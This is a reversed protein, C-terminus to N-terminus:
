EDINRQLILEKTDMNLCCLNGVQKYDYIKHPKSYVCGNDLPIINKNEKIAIEIESLYIVQHGHIVKKGKLKEEDYEFRRTELMALTDSFTDEINTNFGAHVLWFDELEIFYPLNLVFDIYKTKLKGEEDLLNASKNIREVFKQFLKPEYNKHADILNEEHNGRLTYVDYDQEKLNM